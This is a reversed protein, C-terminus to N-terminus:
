ALKEGQGTAIICSVGKARVPFNTAIVFSVNKVPLPIADASTGVIFITATRM